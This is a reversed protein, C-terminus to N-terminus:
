ELHILFKKVQHYLNKLREDFLGQGNDTIIEYHDM